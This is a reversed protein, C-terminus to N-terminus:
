LKFSSLSMGAVLPDDGNGTDDLPDEFLEPDGEEGGDLPELELPDEEDREPLEDGLELMEGDLELMEGDLELPEDDLELM